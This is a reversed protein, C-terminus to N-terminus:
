PKVYEGTFIPHLQCGFCKKFDNLGKDKGYRLYPYAGGTEFYFKEPFMVPYQMDPHSRYDERVAIMAEWLLFKNIGVEKENVSAGWWYYASNKYLLIVNAAIVEGTQVDKLFFVRCRKQPILKFFINRNYEEYIICDAAGTRTYTEEHLYQYIKYDKELNRAEYIVYKGSQKLKRIAQRTTQECNALLQEEPKSIDVIWTYRIRPSFGLIMLPNIGDIMDPLNNERLPPMAAEFSRIDYENFWNDIYQKYADCIKRQERLTLNDAMVYGWRSHLRYYEEEETIRKELHLMAILVIENNEENVICFSKNKDNIWRDLAIVDYLYYAYGGKTHYVFNDWEDKNMECYKKIIPRM